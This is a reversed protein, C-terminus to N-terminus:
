RSAVSNWPTRGQWWRRQSGFAILQAASDYILRVPNRGGRWHFRDIHRDPLPMGKRGVFLKVGPANSYCYCRLHDIGVKRLQEAYDPIFRVHKEHDVGCHYVQQVFIGGANLEGAMQAIWPLLPPHQPWGQRYEDDATLGSVYLVDFGRASVTSGDAVHYAIGKEARCRELAPLLAPDNDVMELSCDARVFHWEEAGFSAGVSLLKKGSLDLVDILHGICDAAGQDVGSLFKIPDIIFTPM